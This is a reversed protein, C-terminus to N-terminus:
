ESDNFAKSAYCAVLGVHLLSAGTAFEGIHYRFLSDVILITSAGLLFWGCDWSFWSIRQDIQVRNETLYGRVREFCGQVREAQVPGAGVEQMEVEVLPSDTSVPRESGELAASM